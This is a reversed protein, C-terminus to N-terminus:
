DCCPEKVDEEYEIEDILKIMNYCVLILEETTNIDLILQKTKNRVVDRRKITSSLYIRCNILMYNYMSITVAIKNETERVNKCLDLFSNVTDLQKEYDHPYKFKNLISDIRQNVRENDNENDDDVTFYTM